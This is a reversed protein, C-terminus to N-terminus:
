RIETQKCFGKNWRGKYIIAKCSLTSQTSKSEIKRSEGLRYLKQHSILQWFTPIFDLTNKFRWKAELLDWHRNKKEKENEKGLKQFLWQYTIISERCPKFSLLFGIDSALNKRHITTQILLSFNIFSISIIWLDSWYSDLSISLLHFAPMFLNYKAVNLHIPYELHSMYIFSACCDEHRWKSLKEFSFHLM